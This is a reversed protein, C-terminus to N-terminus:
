TREKQSGATKITALHLTVGIGVAGFIILMLPSSGMFLLSIALVLYLFALSVLKARITLGQGERYSQLTPGFHKNGILWRYARPSGRAFCAAALLLFPTTPLLPLVLGVAGLSVFTLGLATWTRKGMWGRIQTM